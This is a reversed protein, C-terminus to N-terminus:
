ISSSAFRIWPKCQPHSINNAMYLSFFLLLVYLPFSGSSSFSPLQWISLSYCGYLSLICCGSLSSILWFSHLLLMSLPPVAMTTIPKENFPLHTPPVPSFFLVKTWFFPLCTTIQFNKPAWKASHHAWKSNGM